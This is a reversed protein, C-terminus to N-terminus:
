LPLYAGVPLHAAPGWQGAVAKPRSHTPLNPCQLGLVGTQGGTNVRRGGSVPRRQQDGHSKRLFIISYCYREGTTRHIGMSAKTRRQRRSKAAGSAMRRTAGGRMKAGSTGTARRQTSM